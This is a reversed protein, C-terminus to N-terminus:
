KGVFGYSPSLGKRFYHVVVFAEYALNVFWGVVFSTLAFKDLKSRLYHRQQM